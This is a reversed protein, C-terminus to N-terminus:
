IGKTLKTKQRIEKLETTLYKEFNGMMKSRIVNMFGKKNLDDHYFKIGLNYVHLHFEIIKMEKMIYMYDSNLFKELYVLKMDNKTQLYVMIPINLYESLLIMDIQTIKYNENMITDEFTMEKNLIKYSDQSKKQYVWKLHVFRHLRPHISNYASVLIQKIENYTITEYKNRDFDQLIYKIMMLNCQKDDTAFKFVSTKEPLYKKYPGTPYSPKICLENKANERKYRTENEFLISKVKRSYDGDGQEDQTGLAEKEKLKKLKEQMMKFPMEKAKDIYTLPEQRNEFTIDMNGNTNNDEAPESSKDENEINPEIIIEEGLNQNLQPSDVAKNEEEKEEEIAALKDINGNMESMEDNDDEENSKEPSNQNLNMQEHEDEEEIDTDFKRNDIINFIDHPEISDYTNHVEYTSTKNNYIHKNEIYNEKLSSDTMLMEHKDLKYKNDTFPVNVVQKFVENYKNRNRLILEIFTKLYEVENNEANYLNTKPILLKKTNGDIICHVENEDEDGDNKCMTIEEISDLTSFDYDIFRVNSEEIHNLEQSLEEFKEYIDKEPNNIISDIQTKLNIYKMDNITSKLTDFYTKFFNRELKIARTIRRREDDQTRPRTFIAKDVKYIDVSRRSILDDTKMDPHPEYLSVFQNSNTIIGVIMENDVVKVTPKCKIEKNSIHYIKTLADYTLQFPKWISDSIYEYEVSKHVASSACPIFYENQIVQDDIIFGIIRGDFNMIQKQILLQNDKFTSSFKDIIDGIKMNMEFKYKDNKIEGDCQKKMNTIIKKVIEKVVDPLQDKNFRTKLSIKKNNDVRVVLPEFYESRQFLIINNAHQNLKYKSYGNQPCVISINNTVDDRNEQLIILNVKQSSEQEDLIGSSVIDWLYTYDVYESEDELYKMFNEYGNIKQKLLIIDKDILKKYLKSNSYKVMIEDDVDQDDNFITPISANHFEMIKDLTITERIKNVVDMYSKPNSLLVKGICMLFSKNQHQEVGLRFLCPSNQILAQKKVSRYCTKNDFNLLAQLSMTLHGYRGNDLPFRSEQIIYNKEGTAKKIASMDVVENETMQEMREAIKDQLEKQTKGITKFCCPYNYGKPHKSADTFGAYIRKYHETGPKNFDFIYKKNLDTHKAEEEIIADKQEEDLEKLPIQNKFDWYRPCIYYLKKDKPNTSYMVANEYSNPAIKDIRNKEDETLVVPQARESHLCIRSYQSFRNSLPKQFLEYDERLMKRYFPNENKMRFKNFLDDDEIIVFKKGKFKGYVVGKDDYINMFGNENMEPWFAQLINATHVMMKIPPKDLWKSKTAMYTVGKHRRDHEDYISLQKEVYGNSTMYSHISKMEERDFVTYYGKLIDFREDEVITLQKKNSYFSFHKKIYGKLLIPSEKTIEKVNEESLVGYDFYYFENKTTLSDDFSPSSGGLFPNIDDDDNNDISDNVNQNIESEMKNNTENMELEFNLDNDADPLQAMDGLSGLSDEKGEPQQPLQAMDGLSGLSDEKNEPQQPLQAMNGLSGLSDEKNEPQQPLQAM